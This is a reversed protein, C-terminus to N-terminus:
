ACACNWQQWFCTFQLLWTDKVIYVIFMDTKKISHGWPYLGLNGSHNLFLPHVEAELFGWVTQWKGWVNGQSRDPLHVLLSLGGEPCHLLHTQDDRENTKVVHKNLVVCVLFLNNCKIESDTKSTKKLTSKVLSRGCQSQKFGSSFCKMDWTNAKKAALSPITLSFRTLLSCPLLNFIIFM